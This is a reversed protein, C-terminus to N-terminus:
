PCPRCPRVPWARQQRRQQRQVRWSSTIERPSPRTSTERSLGAEAPSKRKQVACARTRERVMLLAEGDPTAFVKIPRLGAKEDGWWERVHDRQLWAHLLPLDETQVPRLTVAESRL